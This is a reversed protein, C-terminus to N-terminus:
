NTSFEPPFKREKAPKLYRLLRRARRAVDPEELLEQKAEVPLPLAFAVIDCLAALPLNGQLLKVLQERIAGEVPFWPPARQVLQRRLERERKPGEVAVEPLLEVRARRYPRDPPLEEAIRARSLGRVLLNYRGDELRQDALITGVCCVEFLAPRGEYDAEWGPRLLVLTLLRDGALAEATMQRYRPEFIHLPQMVGPFLVLNPLPFLRVVGAFDRPLSPEQSM